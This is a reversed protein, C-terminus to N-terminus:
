GTPSSCGKTCLMLSRGLQTTAEPAAERALETFLDLTWAKQGTIVSHAPHSPDSIEAHANVMSCEKPSSEDMWAKSADFM